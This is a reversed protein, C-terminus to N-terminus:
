PDVPRYRMKDREKAILPQRSNREVPETNGQSELEQTLATERFLKDLIPM